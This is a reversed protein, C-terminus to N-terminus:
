KGGLLLLIATLITFMYALLIGINIVGMALSAFAMILVSSDLIVLYVLYRYLTVAIKLGHPAMREGCAYTSLKDGTKLSKPAKLKGILYIISSAAIVM